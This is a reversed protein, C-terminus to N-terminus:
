DDKQVRQSLIHVRDQESVYGSLCYKAQKGCHKRALEYLRREIPKRLQFYQRSLTLVNNNEIADYVWDSLTIEIEQMKGDRTERVVEAKDIM